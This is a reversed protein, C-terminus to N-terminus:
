LHTGTFISKIKRYAPPIDVILRSILLLAGGIKMFPLSMVLALAATFYSIIHDAYERLVSYGGIDYRDDM